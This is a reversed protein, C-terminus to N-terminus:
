WGLLQGLHQRFLPSGDLPPPPSSRDKELQELDSVYLAADSDTALLQMGKPADDHAPQLIYHAPTDLAKPQHAYYNWTFASGGYDRQPQRIDWTFPFAHHLIESRAFSFPDSRDYGEFRIAITAGLDREKTIVPLSRPLALGLALFAFVATTALFATRHRHRVQLNARWFAVLPLVMIPAFHHLVAGRQLYFFGFCGIIVFAMTRGISDLKHWLVVSLAPLIGSPVLLYAFHQLHARDFLTEFTLIQTIPTARQWLAAFTNVGGPAAMDPSHVLAPLGASAVFCCSLAGAAVVVSRWPQPRWLCVTGALWLVILLAASPWSLYALCTWLCIWGPKGVVFANVFGLFCVILAFDHLTPSALDAIYPNYSAHYGLVVITVTVVLGVLFREPLGLPGRNPRQTLRTIGAVALVRFFVVPLRM